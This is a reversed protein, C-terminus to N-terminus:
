NYFAAFVKKITSFSNKIKEAVDNPEIWEAAVIGEESQPTLDCSEARMAYWATYKMEWNGYLNYCHLTTALLRDVGLIKVGTEEEAERAACVEFNEGCERHGKPLDWRENRRIMAVRGDADVAIGGAAEVWVFQSAFDIFHAMPNPSIIVVNNYNGLFTTIKARSISEDALPRLECAGTISVEHQTFIVEKDAFSVRITGDAEVPLPMNCEPTAVRGDGQQTLIDHPETM